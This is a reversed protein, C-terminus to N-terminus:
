LLSTQTPQPKAEEACEPGDNRPNNVGLGVTHRQLWADPCPAMLETLEKIEDSEPDLWLAYHTPDLIVPMRDHVAELTANARTTVITCSNVERGQDSKWDERLGAFAFLGGDRRAIYWPQKPASDTAWEYFGDAPILCRKRRFASRFAPKDAVTEARANILRNGIAPDKAWAPVLGWTRMELIQSGGSDAARVTAVKQSPTINFRASLEPAEDLDFHEAVDDPRARLSFRGCV